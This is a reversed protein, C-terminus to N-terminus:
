QPLFSPRCNSEPFIVATLFFRITSGQVASHIREAVVPPCIWDNEGVLVLTDVHIQNMM